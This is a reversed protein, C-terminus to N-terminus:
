RSSASDPSATTSRFDPGGRGQRRAQRAGALVRPHRVTRAGVAAAAAAAMRWRRAGTIASASWRCKRPAPKVEIGRRAMMADLLKWPRQAGNWCAKTSRRWRPRATRRRAATRAPSGFQAKVQERVRYVPKDTQGQGGARPGVLRRHTRRRGHPLGAQGPRGHCDARCGRDRGRVALASVFVNPGYNPKIPVEIVPQDRTVEKVWADLVGEREVTVLVEASAFPMAM